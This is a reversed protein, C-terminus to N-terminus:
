TEKIPEPKIAIPSMLKEAIDLCKNYFISNVLIREDIDKLYLGSKQIFTSKEFHVKLDFILSYVHQSDKKLVVGVNAAWLDNKRKVPKQGPRLLGGVIIHAILHNSAPLTSSKVLKTEFDLHCNAFINNLDVIKNTHSYEVTFTRAIKTIIKELNKDTLNPKFKEIELLFQDKFSGFDLQSSSINLVILIIILTNRM